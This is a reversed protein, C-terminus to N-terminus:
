EETLRKNLEQEKEAQQAAREKLKEIEEERQLIQYEFDAKAAQIKIIELKIRAVEIKTM